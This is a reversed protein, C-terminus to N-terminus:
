RERRPPWRTPGAEAGTLASATGQAGYGEDTADEDAAVAGYRGEGYRGYGYGEPVGGCDELPGAGASSDEAGGRTGAGVPLLATGGVAAGLGLVTRRGLTATDGPDDSAGSRGDM